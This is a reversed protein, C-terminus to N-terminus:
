ATKRRVVFTGIVGLAPVLLALSGAEPVVVAQSPNMQGRITGGPSANNHANTYFNAPNALVNALDPDTVSGGSLIAFLDVVVGGNVGTAGQHIHFLTLPTTVNANTVLSGTVTNTADNIFLTATGAGGTEGAMGVEQTADMPVIFRIIAAQASSSALTAIGLAIFLVLKKM